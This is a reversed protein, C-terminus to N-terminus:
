RLKKLHSFVVEPTTPISTIRVGIADFIANLMAPATAAITAEGVGKAGFPGKGSGSELIIARIDPVDKATPVLYTTLNVNQPIGQDEIFDEMLAYGLGQTMGGEIQGEVRKPNIAKGIDFAGAMKIVNIKGTRTDVEIEVGQTGFTFDPFIKGELQAKRIPEATPARYTELAEVPNGENRLAKVVQSLPIKGSPAGVIFAEGNYLDVNVPDAGLIQSAKGILDQRISEAALKAANGSMM